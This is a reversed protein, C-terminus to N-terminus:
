SSELSELVPLSLTSLGSALITKWSFDLAKLFHKTGRIRGVHVGNFISRDILDLAIQPKTKFVVEDPVYNKEGRRTRQGSKPCILM